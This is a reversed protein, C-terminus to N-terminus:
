RILKQAYKRVDRDLADLSGLEKAALENRKPKGAPGIGALYARLKRLRAPNTMLYHFLLWAEANALQETKPDEFLPDDKLLRSLPIWPEGAQQSNIFAQLRPRNTAGLGGRAKPVWLEAYTAFGESICTPVDAARDLMGTNFSLQHATEHVLTLLNVRTADAALEDEQPRFDFIVLRNTDLDFHGGVSAGPDEGYYAHYSTGDKLAIVTMRRPPLEVKFGRSRFHGMFVESLSECIKLAARCHAEPADGMCLFHKTQSQSVFKLGAKAASANVKAIEEADSADGDGSRTRALLPNAWTSGIGLLAGKLWTRRSLATPHAEPKSREDRPHPRIMLHIERLDARRSLLRLKPM